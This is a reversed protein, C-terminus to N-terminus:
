AQGGVLNPWRKLIPRLPANGAVVIEQPCRIQGAGDCENRLCWATTEDRVHLNLRFRWQGLVHFTVLERETFLPHGSLSMLGSRRLSINCLVASRPSYM